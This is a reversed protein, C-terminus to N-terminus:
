EGGREGVRREEPGINEGREVDQAHNVWHSGRLMAAVYLKRVSTLGLSHTHGGSGQGGTEELRTSYPQFPQVRLGLAADQYPNTVATFKDIVQPLSDTNRM